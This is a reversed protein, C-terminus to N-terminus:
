DSMLMFHVKNTLLPKQIQCVKVPFIHCPFELYFINKLLAVVSWRFHHINEALNQHKSDCVEPLLKLHLEVEECAYFLCSSRCTFFAKNIMEVTASVTPDFILPQRCCMFVCVRYTCSKSPHAQSQTSVIFVRLLYSSSHTVLQLLFTFLM